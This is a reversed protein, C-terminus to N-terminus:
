LARLILATILSVAGGVVIGAVAAVGIVKSQFSTLNKIESGHSKMDEELQEVYRRLEGLKGNNGSVGKIDVIDGALRAVAHSADAPNTELRVIRAELELIQKPTKRAPWLKRVAAILDEIDLPPPTLESSSFLEDPDTETPAGRHPTRRRHDRDDTM